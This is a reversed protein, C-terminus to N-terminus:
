DPDHELVQPRKANAFRGAIAGLFTQMADAGEDAERLKERARPTAMMEPLSIGLAETLRILMFVAPNQHVKGIAPKETEPDIVVNGEKDVMPSFMVIGKEAIERRVQQIVNLNAALEAAMAANIKSMEGTEVCDIIADFVQAYVTKDLCDGGAQTLGQTVLSCPHERRDPNDPHVPCTTLCPKGFAKLNLSERVSAFAARNVASYRGHIWSNRSAIAKGEPTTPGTSAQAALANAARRQALEAESLPKTRPRPKSAAARRQAIEADTLPKRHRPTVSTM